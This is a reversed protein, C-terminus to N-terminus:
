IANIIGGNQILFTQKESESMDGRIDQFTCKYITIGYYNTYVHTGYPPTCEVVMLETNMPYIRYAYEVEFSLASELQYCWGLHEYQDTEYSYRVGYPYEKKPHFVMQWSNTARDVAWIFRSRGISHRIRVVNLKADLKKLENHQSGVYLGDSNPDKYVQCITEIQTGYLRLREKMDKDLLGVCHNVGVVYGDPAYDACCVLGNFKKANIITLQETEYELLMNQIAVLLRTGDPNYRISSVGQVTGVGFDRLQLFMKPLPPLHQENRIRNEETRRDCQVPHDLWREEEENYYCIQLQQQLYSRCFNRRTPHWQACHAPVDYDMGEVCLTGDLKRWLLPELTYAVNLTGDEIFRVYRFSQNRMPNRHEEICVPKGNAKDLVYCLLSDGYLIALIKRDSDWAFDIVKEKHPVFTAIWTKLCVDYIKIKGNEGGSFILQESALVASVSSDHGDTIFNSQNIWAKDFCCTYLEDNFWESFRCGNLWCKRLDLESFDCWALLGERGIKMINFLNAVARQSSEGERGRWFNLSAETVSKSSAERSTKGPFVWGTKTMVPHANEEYVIDSVFSLIDNEYIMEVIAANESFRSNDKDFAWLEAALYYAAFYDRFSQHLFEFNEENKFLFHLRTVALDVLSEEDVHSSSGMVRRLRDRRYWQYRNNNVNVEDVCDWLDDETIYMRNNCVMHHAVSPLLYELLVLHSTRDFSAEAAARYLQTQFFNSLIKGATDPSEVLKIGEISRYKDIYQEMDAYLTLMLPTRLISLVRPDTVSPLGMSILYADIVDLDLPQMELVDVDDLLRRMSQRDVWRSSMLIQVGPLSRIYSTELSEIFADLENVPIENIGDLLLVVNPHGHAPISMLHELISYIKNDRGCVVHRLYQDLTMDGGIKSLPVYIANIDQKLLYECTKLLSVTKGIGGEGTILVHKEGKKGKTSKDKTEKISLYHILSVNTHTEDRYIINIESDKISPFLEGRIENLIYNGSQRYQKEHYQRLLTVIYCLPINSCTEAKSLDYEGVLQQIEEIIRETNHNGQQLIADAKSKVTDKIDDKTESILTQIREMSIFQNLEVDKKIDANVVSLFEKTFNSIESGIPKGILNRNINWEVLVAELAKESDIEVNTSTLIEYAGDFKYNGEDNYRKNVKDFSKKLILELRENANKESNLTQMIKEIVIEVSTGGVESLVSEKWNSNSIKSKIMNALCTSLLKFLFKPIAM